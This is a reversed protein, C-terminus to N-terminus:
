HLSQVRPQATLMFAVHQITLPYPIACNTRLLGQVCVPVLCQPLHLLLVSRGHLDPSRKQGQGLAGQLSWLIPLSQAAHWEGKDRNCVPVQCVHLLGQLSWRSSHLASYLIFPSQLHQSAQQSLVDFEISSNQSAPLCALRGASLLHNSLYICYCTVAHAQLLAM